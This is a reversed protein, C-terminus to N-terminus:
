GKDKSKCGSVEGILKKLVWRGLRIRGRLVKGSM